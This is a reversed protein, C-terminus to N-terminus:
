SGRDTWTVEGARLLRASSGQLPGFVLSGLLATITVGAKIDVGALPSIDTGAVLEWKAALYRAPTFRARLYPNLGSM